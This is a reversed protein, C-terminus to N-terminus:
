VSGQMLFHVAEKGYTVPTIVYCTNLVKVDAETYAM